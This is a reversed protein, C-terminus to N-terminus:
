VGIQCEQISGRILIPCINKIREKLKNNISVRKKYLKYLKSISRQVSIDPVPIEIECLNDYDFVITSSGFSNFLVKRAFSNRQLIMYLYYSELENTKSVFFTEYAPSVLLNKDENLAVSLKNITSNVRSNYVFYNNQIIKFTTINGSFLRMPEIFEGNNNFGKIDDISYKNEQNRKTNREIYYGVKKYLDKGFSDIYGDCVLKLDALGKEYTHLNKLMSEYIAVYRKQIEIPPIVLEIDCFASWEMGDRVSSDCHFWFYRDKETSNLLIFLYENLITNEDILKFITYAPSVYKNKNIRNIAIPLVVDRGIHMLNCAFYNPPVIKYDSTDNGVQKSPEFFEKDRNIGSVDYVTLNPINCKEAYKEIYDGLKIRQLKM